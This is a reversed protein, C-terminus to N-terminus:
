ERPTTKKEHRLLYNVRPDLLKHELLEEQTWQIQDEEKITNSLSKAITINKDKLVWIGRNRLLTRLRRTFSLLTSAKLSEETFGMFDEKFQEWLDADLFDYYEYELIKYEIYERASDTDTPDVGQSWKQQGDRIQQSTITM